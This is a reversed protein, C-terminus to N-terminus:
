VGSLRKVVRLSPLEPPPLPGSAGQHGGRRGDRDDDQDDVPSWSPPSRLPAPPPPAERVPTAHIVQVAPEKKAIEKGPIPPAGGSEREPIVVEVGTAETIATVLCGRCMDTAAQIVVRGGYVVSGNATFAKEYTRKCRDCQVSTVKAM